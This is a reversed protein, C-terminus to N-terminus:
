IQKALVAFGYKEINLSGSVTEGSLVNEYPQDLQVAAASDGFNQVFILKETDSQRWTLSIGDPVATRIAYTLDCAAALKAYLAQVFDTDSAASVHYAM